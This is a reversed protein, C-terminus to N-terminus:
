LQREVKSVELVVEEQVVVAALEEVVVVVDVSVEVVVVKSFSMFLFM